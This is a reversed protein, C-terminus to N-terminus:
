WFFMLLYPIVFYVASFATVVVIAWFMEKGHLFISSLLAAGLPVPMTFLLLFSARAAFSMSSISANPADFMMLSLMAMLVSVGLLGVILLILVVTAYYALGRKPAHAGPLDQNRATTSSPPSKQQATDNSIM